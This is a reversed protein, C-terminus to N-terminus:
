NISASARIPIQMGREAHRGKFRRTFNLITFGVVKNTKPSVRVLIDDGVGKSIAKKPKGISIDLIDGEEDFWFRLKEKM